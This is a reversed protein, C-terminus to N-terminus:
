PALGHIAVLRYVDNEVLVITADTAECVRAANEAVTNLTTQLNTPSSAVMRLVESTANQQEAAERLEQAQAAITKKLAEVSERSSPARRKVSSKKPPKKNM